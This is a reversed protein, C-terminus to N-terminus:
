IKAFPQFVGLARLKKDPIRVQHEWEYTEHILYIFSRIKTFNKYTDLTHIRLLVDILRPLISSYSERPSIALISQQAVGLSLVVM